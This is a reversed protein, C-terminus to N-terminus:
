LSRFIRKCLHETFCQKIFPGTESCRQVTLMNFPGLSQQFM